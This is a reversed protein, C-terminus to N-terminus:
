VPLYEVSPLFLSEDSPFLPFFARPPTLPLFFAFLVFTGGAVFNFFYESPTGGEDGLLIIGAEGPRGTRVRELETSYM